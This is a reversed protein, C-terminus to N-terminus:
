DLDRIRRDPRAGPRRRVSRDPRGAGLRRAAWLDFQDFEHLGGWLGRGLSDMGPKQNCMIMSQPEPSQRGRACLSSGAYSQDPDLFPLVVISTRAATANSAPLGSATSVTCSSPGLAPSTSTSILAVPM